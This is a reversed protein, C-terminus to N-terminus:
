TTMLPFSSKSDITKNVTKAADGELVAVDVQSNSGTEQEIPPDIQNQSIKMVSIKPESSANLQPSFKNPLRMEEYAKMQQSSLDFPSVNNDEPSDIKDFNMRSKHKPTHSVKMRQDSKDIDEFLLTSKPSRDQINSSLKHISVLEPTSIPNSKNKEVFSGGKVMVSLPPLLSNTNNNM